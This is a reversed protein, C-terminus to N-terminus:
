LCVFRGDLAHDKPIFEIRLYWENGESGVHAYCNELLNGRSTM